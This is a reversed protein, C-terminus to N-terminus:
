IDHKILWVERLPGALIPALLEPMGTETRWKSYASHSSRQDWEEVLIIDDENSASTYTALSLCGKFARTDALASRFIELLDKGLGPKCPFTLILTDM